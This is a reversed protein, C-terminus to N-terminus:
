TTEEFLEGLLPRVTVECRPAKRDIRGVVHYERVQRDNEYIRGQMCDFLLSPDVDSQRSPYYIVAHVFVDCKFRERLFPIQRACDNVFARAKPGKIFAVFMRGSKSRRPVAERSNAKSQCIGHVTFSIENM